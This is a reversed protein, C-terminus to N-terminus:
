FAGAGHKKARKPLVISTLSSCTFFTGGKIKVITNTEM